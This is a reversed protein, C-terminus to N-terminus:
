RGDVLKTQIIRELEEIKTQTLRGSSRWLPYGRDDLLILTPYRNGIQFEEPVANRPGDALLIRFNTQQLSCWRAVRYKSDNVAISVVELGVRGFQSQWAKLNWIQQKGEQSDTQWFSLLVLKGLRNKKWEWNNGYIDKLAFNRLRTGDMLCSPITTSGPPADYKNDTETPTSRPSPGSHPSRRRNSESDASPDPLSPPTKALPARRGSGPGQVIGPPISGRERGRREQFEQGGGNEFPDATRARAPQKANAGRAQNSSDDTGGVGRVESRERSDQFSAGGDPSNDPYMRIAVPTYPATTQTTGILKRTGDLSTAVLKYKTGPKLNYFMFTGDPQVELTIPAVNTDYESLSICKVRAKRFSQTSNSPDVLYGGIAATPIDEGKTQRIPDDKPITSAPTSKPPSTRAWPWWKKRNASSGTSTCGVTFLCLVCLMLIYPVVRM